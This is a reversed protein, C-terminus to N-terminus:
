QCSAASPDGLNKRRQPEARRVIFRIDLNTVQLTGGLTFGITVGLAANNSVSYNGGGTSATTTVLTGAKVTTDGTYTNAGSFTETGTGIKTIALGAGDQLIGGYTATANNDGIILTGPANSSAVFNNAPSNATSSLGNITQTSGNLDFIARRNAATANLILNGTKGGAYNGTNGHPMINYDGNTAAIVLVSSVTGGSTGSITTDGAYDNPTSTGDIKGIAINGGGTSSTSTPSGITLGGPGTIKGALGYRIGNLINANGNGGVVANATLHITGTLIAGNFIRLAGM